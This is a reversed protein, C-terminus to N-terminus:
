RETSLHWFTIRELIMWKQRRRVLQDLLPKVSWSTRGATPTKKRVSSLCRKDGNKTGKQRVAVALPGNRCSFTFSSQKQQASTQSGYIVNAFYKSNSSEQLLLQYWLLIWVFEKVICGGNRETLIDHPNAHPQCPLHCRRRSLHPFDVRARTFSVVVDRQKEIDSGLLPLSRSTPCSPQCSTKASCLAIRLKVGMSARVTREGDRERNWLGMIEGSQSLNFEKRGEATQASNERVARKGTRYFRLLSSSIGGLPGFEEVFSESKNQVCQM